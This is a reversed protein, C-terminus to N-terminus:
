IERLVSFLMTASGGLQLTCKHHKSVHLPRRSAGKIAELTRPATAKEMLFSPFKETRSIMPCDLAGNPIWDALTPVQDSQRVEKEPTASSL